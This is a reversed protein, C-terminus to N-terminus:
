GYGHAQVMFWVLLQVRRIRATMVINRSFIKM